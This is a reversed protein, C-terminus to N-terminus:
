AKRQGKSPRANGSGGDLAKRKNQGKNQEKEEQMEQDTKRTYYNAINWEVFSPRFWQKERLDLQRGEAFKAADEPPLFHAAIFSMLTFAADNGACHTIQYKQGAATTYSTNFGMDELIADLGPNPISRFPRGLHHHANHFHTVWVDWMQIDLFAIGREFCWNQLDYDRMMDLDGGGHYLIYIKRTSKSGIPMHHHLLQNMANVFKCRFDEGEILKSQEFGFIEPILKGALLKRAAPASKKRAAPLALWTQRKGDPGHVDLLDQIHWNRVQMLPLWNKAFPGPPTNAPRVPQNRHAKPNGKVVDYIDFSALGFESLPAKTHFSKRVPPLRRGRADLTSPRDHKYARVGARRMGMVPQIFEMDICAFIPCQQVPPTNSLPSKLDDLSLTSVDRGPFGFYEMAFNRSLRGASSTGDPIPTAAPVPNPPAKRMAIDRVQLDEHTGFTTIDDSDYGDSSAM